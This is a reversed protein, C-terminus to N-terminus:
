FFFLFFLLLMLNIVLGCIELIEKPSSASTLGSFVYDALAEDEIRIL